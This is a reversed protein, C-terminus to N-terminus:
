SFDLAERLCAEIRPWLEVSLTGIKRRVLRQEITFLNSCNVASPALVGSQKGEPTGPDLLLQTPESRVSRTIMAVITNTLRANDRDNQLVLVPRVKSGSGSAFPMDIIVIDGRQVTM